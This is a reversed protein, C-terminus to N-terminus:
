VEILDVPGEVIFDMKSSPMIGVMLAMGVARSAARMLRSAQGFSKGARGPKSNGCKITGIELAWGSKAFGFVKKGAIVGLSRPVTKLKSM